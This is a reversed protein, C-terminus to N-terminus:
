AGLRCCDQAASVWAPLPHRIVQTPCPQWVKGANAAKGALSMASSFTPGNPGYPWSAQYIQCVFEQILLHHHTQLDRAANVLQTLHSARHAPWSEPGFATCSSCRVAIASDAQQGQAKHKLWLRHQQVTELLVTDTCALLRSSSVTSSCSRWRASFKRPSRFAQTCLKWACAPLDRSVSLAPSGGGMPVLHRGTDPLPAWKGSANWACAPPDYHKSHLLCAWLDAPMALPRHPRHRLSSEAQWWVEQCICVPALAHKHTSYNRWRCTM